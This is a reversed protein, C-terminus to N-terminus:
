RRLVGGSNGFVYQDGEALKFDNPMLELAMEKAAQSWHLPLARRNDVLRRAEVCEWCNCGKAAGFEDLDDM